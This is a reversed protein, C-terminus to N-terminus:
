DARPHNSSRTDVEDSRELFRKRFSSEEMLQANLRNRRENERVDQIVFHNIMAVIITIIVLLLIDFFSTLIETFELFNLIRVNFSYYYFMLRIVGLFIIFSGLYPILVSFNNSNDKASVNDTM